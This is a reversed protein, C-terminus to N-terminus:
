YARIRNAGTILRYGAYVLLVPISLKFLFWLISFAMGVIGALIGFAMLGGIILCITGCLKGFM